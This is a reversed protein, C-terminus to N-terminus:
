PRSSHSQPKHHELAFRTQLPLIALRSETMEPGARTERM